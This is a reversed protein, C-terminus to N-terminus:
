CGIEGGLDIIATKISGELFEVIQERDISPTRWKEDAEALQRNLYNIVEQVQEKTM